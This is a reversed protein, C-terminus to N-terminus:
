IYKKLNEQTMECCETVTASFDYIHRGLTKNPTFSVNSLYVIINGEEYSKFLKPQGNTLFNM